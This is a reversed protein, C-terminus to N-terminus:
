RLDSIIQKVITECYRATERYYGPHQTVQRQIKGAVQHLARAM